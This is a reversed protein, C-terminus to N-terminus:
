GNTQFSPIRTEVPNKWWKRMLQAPSVGAAKHDSDCWRIAENWGGFHPTHGHASGLTYKMVQPFWIQWKSFETPCISITWCFRLKWTPLSEYKLSSRNEYMRCMYIYICIYVSIYLFRYIYIYLIYIYIIMSDGDRPTQWRGMGEVNELAVSSTQQFPQRGWGGGVKGHLSPSFWRNRIPALHPVRQYHGNKIPLDVIEVAM